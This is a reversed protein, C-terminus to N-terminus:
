ARAAGAKARQGVEPQYVMYVDAREYHSGDRVSPQLVFGAQEYM